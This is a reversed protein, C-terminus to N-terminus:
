NGNNPGFRQFNPERLFEYIVRPLFRRAVLLAYLFCGASALWTQFAIFGALGTTSSSLLLRLAQPIEWFGVACGIVLLFVRWLLRVNLPALAFPGDDPFSVIWLLVFVLFEISLLGYSQLLEVTARETIRQAIARARGYLLFWIVAPVVTWGLNKVRHDLIPNGVSSLALLSGLFVLSGLPFHNVATERVADKYLWFGVGALLLSSFLASGITKAAQSKKKM